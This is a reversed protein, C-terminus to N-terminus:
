RESRTEFIFARWLTQARSYTLERATGGTYEAVMRSWFSMASPNTQAVRVTWGGRLRQWLLVAATHGV